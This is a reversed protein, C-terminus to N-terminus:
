ENVRPGPGTSAPLLALLVTKLDKEKPIVNLRIVPSHPFTDDENWGLATIVFPPDVIELDEQEVISVDDGMFDSDPNAPYLQREWLYLQVHALGCPGPPFIIEVQKLLGPHIPIDETVPAAQATNPPITLTIEYIM